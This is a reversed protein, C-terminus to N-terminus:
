VRTLEVRLDFSAELSQDPELVAIGSTPDRRDYLNVGDNANTVPEVAFYPKDAPNYLILHSAASSCAFHLRIGSTPWTISGRGQYGHFCTDLFNERALPRENSFDQHELLPQAPGSPIRTNNDDPYASQVEFHLHVPEDGRTLTRNFFPHWGFGAPMPGDGRNWLRLRQQLTQESLQYEACVAFPWPWNVEDHDTSDFTCVLRHPTKEAVVWPRNRVDGHIAHQEANALQYSRGAFAFAGNAIRNSYPVMLFSAAALDCAPDGIRPMLSLWTDERQIEFSHLSTGQDPDIATRLCSSELLIPAM